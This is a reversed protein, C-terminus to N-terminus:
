MDVWNINIRIKQGTSNRSAPVVDICASGDPHCILEVYDVGAHAECWHLIGDRFPRVFATQEGLSQVDVTHMEGVEAQLEAVKQLIQKKCTPDLEDQADRRLFGMKQPISGEWPEKASQEPADDDDDRSDDDDDDMLDALLRNASM